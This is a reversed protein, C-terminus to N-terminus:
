DRACIMRAAPLGTIAANCCAVRDTGISARVTRVVIGPMVFRAFVALQQPHFSRVWILLAIRSPSTGRAGPPLSGHRAAGSLLELAAVSRRVDRQMLSHCGFNVRSDGDWSRAEALKCRGGNQTTEIKKFWPASQGAGSKYGVWQAIRDNFPVSEYRKGAARTVARM